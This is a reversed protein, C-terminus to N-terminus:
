NILTMVDNVRPFAMVDNVTRQFNLKKIPRLATTEDHPGKENPLFAHLLFLLAVSFLRDLTVQFAIRDRCNGLLETVRPWPDVFPNLTMLRTTLLLRPLFLLSSSRMAVRPLQRAFNHFRDLQRTQM